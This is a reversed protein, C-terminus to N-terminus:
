RLQMYCTSRWCYASDSAKAIPGCEGPTLSAPLALTMGSRRDEGDDHLNFTNRYKARTTM